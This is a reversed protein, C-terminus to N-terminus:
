ATVSVDSATDRELHCAGISGVSGSAESRASIMAERSSSGSVHNQSALSPRHRPPGVSALRFPANVTFRIPLATEALDPPGLTMEYLPQQTSLASHQTSRARKCTQASSPSSAPQSDLPHRRAGCHCGALLHAPCSGPLQPILRLRLCSRFRRIPMRRVHPNKQRM